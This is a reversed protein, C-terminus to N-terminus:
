RPRRRYDPRIFVPHYSSSTKRGDWLVTPSNWQDVKVVVGSQEWRTRPFLNAGKGDTSPRVRQGVRFKYKGYVEIPQKM